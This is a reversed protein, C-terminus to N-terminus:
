IPYWTSDITGISIVALPEDDAAGDDETLRTAASGLSRIPLFVDVTDNANDGKGHVFVAEAKTRGRWFAFPVDQDSVAYASFVEGM